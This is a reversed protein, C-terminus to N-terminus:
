WARSWRGGTGGAGRLSSDIGARVEVVRGLLWLLDSLRNLYAIAHPPLHEGSEGLRVLFREARRCVTRAVDYAAAAPHEGPISWDGLVGELAELRHVEDTLREVMAASIEQRRAEARSRGEGPVEAGTREPERDGVEESGGSGPTASGVAFLERQIAKTLARVEEDECISRAFGMASNVEDVLGYTEVRPSAKSVRVSGVLSTEGEDGRKTAISM